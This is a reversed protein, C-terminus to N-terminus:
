KTSCIFTTTTPATVSAPLVSSSLRVWSSGAAVVSAELSDGVSKWSKGAAASHDPRAQPPPPVALPPPPVPHPSPFCYVLIFTSCSWPSGLCGLLRPDRRIRRKKERSGRTPAAAAAMETDQVALFQFRQGRMGTRGAVGPQGEAVKLLLLPPPPLLLM